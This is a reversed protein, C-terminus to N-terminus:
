FKYTVFRADSIMCPSTMNVTIGIGEKKNAKIPSGIQMSIFIQFKHFCKEILVPFIATM